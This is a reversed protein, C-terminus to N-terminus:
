LMGNLRLDAYTEVTPIEHQRFRISPGCRTIFTCNLGSVVEVGGEPFDVVHPHFFGFHIALKQHENDRRLFERCAIVVERLYRRHWKQLFRIM